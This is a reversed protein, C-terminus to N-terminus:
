GHQEGHDGHPDREAETAANVRLAAEGHERLTMRQKAAILALKTKPSVAEGWASATEVLVADQAPTGHCRWRDTTLEAVTQQADLLGHAAEHLKAGAAIVDDTAIDVLAARVLRRTTDVTDALYDREATIRELADAAALVTTALIGSM